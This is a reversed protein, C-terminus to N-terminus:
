PGPFSIHAHVWPIPHVPLISFPAPVLLPSLRPPISCISPPASHGPSSLAPTPLYHTLVFPRSYSAITWPPTTRAVITHALGTTDQKPTLPRGMVALMAVCGNPTELSLVLCTLARLASPLNKKKASVCHTQRRRQSRSLPGPASSGLPTSPPTSRAFSPALPLTDVSSSFSRRRSSPTKCPM